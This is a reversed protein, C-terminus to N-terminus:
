NYKSADHISNSSPSFSVSNNDNRVYPVMNKVMEEELTKPFQNNMTNKFFTSRKNETPIFKKINMNMNMNDLSFGARFLAFLIAIIGLIGVFPGIAFLSLSIVLLVFKGFYTNIFDNAFSPLHIDFVIFVVLLLILATNSNFNVKM